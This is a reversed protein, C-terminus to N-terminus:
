ANSQQKRGRMGALGALCLGLLALTTPEPVSLPQTDLDLNDVSVPWDNTGTNVVQFELFTTNFFNLALTGPATGVVTAGLSDRFVIGGTGAPVDILDVELVAFPSSSGDAYDVRIINPASNASSDHWSFYPGQNQNEFHDGPQARVRFGDEDYTVTNDGSGTAFDITVPVATAAGSAIAM